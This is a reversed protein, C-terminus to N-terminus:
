HELDIILVSNIIINIYDINAIYICKSHIGVFLMPPLVWNGINTPPHTTIIGEKYLYLFKKCFVESM